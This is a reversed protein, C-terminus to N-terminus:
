AEGMGHRHRYQSEFNRVLAYSKQDSRSHKNDDAYRQDRQSRRFLWDLPYRWCNHLIAGLASFGRGLQQRFRSHFTSTYIIPRYNSMGIVAHTMKSRASASTGMRRIRKRLLHTAAKLKATVFRIVLRNAARNGPKPM